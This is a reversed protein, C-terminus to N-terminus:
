RLFTAYNPLDKSRRYEKMKPIRTENEKIFDKLTDNNMGYSSYIGYKLQM